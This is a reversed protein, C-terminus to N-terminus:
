WSDRVAAAQSILNEMLAGVGFAMAAFKNPQSTIRIPQQIYPAFGHIGGGNKEYMWIWDFRSDVPCPELGRADSGMKHQVVFYERAAAAPDAGGRTGDAPSYDKM